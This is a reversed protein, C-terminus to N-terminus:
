GSPEPRRAVPRGDAPPGAVAPAPRHQDPPPASGGSSRSAPTASWQRRDGLLGAVQRDADVAACAEAPRRRGRNQGTSTPQDERCVDAMNAGNLQMQELMRREAGDGVIQRDADAMGIQIPADQEQVLRRFAPEVGRDVLRAAMRGAFVRGGIDLRGPRHALGERAAGGLGLLDDRHGVASRAGDLRDSERCRRLPRAAAM